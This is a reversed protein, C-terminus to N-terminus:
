MIGHLVFHEECWGSMVLKDPRAFERKGLHFEPGGFRHPHATVGRWSLAAQHIRQQAGNVAMFTTGELNASRMFNNLVAGDDRSQRSSM